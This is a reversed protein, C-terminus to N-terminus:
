HTYKMTARKVLNSRSGEPFQLYEETAQSLNSYFGRYPPPLLAALQYMIEDTMQQRISTNVKHTSQMLEFQNGVVINFNM